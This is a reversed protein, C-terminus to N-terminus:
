TRRTPPKRHPITVENIDWAWGAYTLSSWNRDFWGITRTAVRGAGAADTSRVKGGGLSIAIHGYGRSGGTWYVAAGRPPKRDRHKDNANRWATAADPYRAPIGAWIRCQQLCYGIPNYSDAEARLATRRSIFVM